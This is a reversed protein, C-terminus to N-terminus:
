DYRSSITLSFGKLTGTKGLATDVVELTYTGNVYADREIGHGVVIEGATSTAHDLVVEFSTNPAHLTVVLDTPRPHDIDLTLLIDEPVTALGYVVVTSTVGVAPADPIPLSTTSEFTGTM